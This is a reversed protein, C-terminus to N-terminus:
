NENSNEKKDEKKIKKAKDLTTKFNSTYIELFSNDGSLFAKIQITDGYKDLLANFDKLLNNNNNNKILM